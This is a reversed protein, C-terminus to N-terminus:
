RSSCSGISFATVSRTTASSGSAKVGSSAGAARQAGIVRRVNDRTLDAEYAARKTLDNITGSGVAIPLVNEVFASRIRAVHALDPRLSPTGPFVVPAGFAIGAADLSGAVAQGAIEIVQEVWDRYDAGAM